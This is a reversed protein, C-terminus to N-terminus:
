NKRPTSDIQSSRGATPDSLPQMPTPIPSSLTQDVEELLAEDGVRDMQQVQAPPNKPTVAATEHRHFTFPVVIALLLMAASAWLVPRTSLREAVSSWLSPRTATLQAPSSWSRHASAHSAWAVTTSRFSSLAQRLSAYEAACRSCVRLHQAEPESLQSNALLLDCLQEHTLHNQSM